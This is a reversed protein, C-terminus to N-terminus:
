CFKTLKQDFCVVFGKYHIWLQTAKGPEQIEAAWKGGARQWVGRYRQKKVAPAEGPKKPAALPSERKIVLAIGDGHEDVNAYRCRLFNSDYIRLLM